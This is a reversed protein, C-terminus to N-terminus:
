TREIVPQGSRLVFLANTRALGEPEAMFADAINSAVTSVDPATISTVSM